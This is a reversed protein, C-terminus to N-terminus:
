FFCQPSFPPRTAVVCACLWNIWCHRFFRFVFVGGFGLVWIRGGRGKTTIALIDGASEGGVGMARSEGRRGVFDCTM